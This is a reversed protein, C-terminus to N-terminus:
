RPFNNASEILLRRCAHQNSASGTWAGVGFYNGGATFAGLEVTGIFKDEQKIDLYRTGDPNKGFYFDMVQYSSVDLTSQPSIEALLSGNKYVYIAETSYEDFFVSIGGSVTSHNAAAGVASSNCGWFIYNGDGGGSTGGAWFQTAIHLPQNWDISQQWYLKGNQSGSNPTLEVYGNFFTGSSSNSKWSTNGVFTGGLGGSTPNGKVFNWEFSGPNTTNDDLRVWATGNWYYYGPTVNSPSTGATATNYVLMSTTPSTLPSASGLGTLAIRPILIGKTSSSVDLQASSSPSATGIGVQADASLVFGTSVLFLFLYVNIKM